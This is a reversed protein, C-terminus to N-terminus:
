ILFKLNHKGAISEIKEVDPPMTTIERSVEEFFKEFGGPTIMVWLKGDAEGINRFAHPVRRPLVAVDGKRAVFTREGCTIEFEGEIVLFIEDEDAHIHPPPGQQPAVINELMSYAGGTEESRIKCFMQTGMVNWAAGENTGVVIPQSLTNSM